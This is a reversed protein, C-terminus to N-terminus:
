ISRMNRREVGKGACIRSFAKSILSPYIKQLFEIGDGSQGFFEFNSGPRNPGIHVLLQDRRHPLSRPQQEPRVVTRPQFQDPKHTFKVAHCSSM